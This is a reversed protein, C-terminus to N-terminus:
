SFDAGRMASRLSVRPRTSRRVTASSRRGANRGVGTEDCRACPADCAKEDADLDVRQCLRVASGSSAEGSRCRGPITPSIMESRQAVHFNSDDAADDADAGEQIALAAPPQGSWRSPDFGPLCLGHRSREIAGSGGAPQLGPGPADSQGHEDSNRDCRCIVHEVRPVAVAHGGANLVVGALQPVLTM